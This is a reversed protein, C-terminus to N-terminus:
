KHTKLYISNWCLALYLVPSLYRSVPSSIDSHLPKTHFVYKRQVLAHYRFLQCHECDKRIEPYHWLWLYSANCVIMASHHTRDAGKKLYHVKGSNLQMFYNSLKFCVNPCIIYPFLGLQSTLFFGEQFLSFCLSIAHPDPAEANKGAGVEWVLFGSTISWSQAPLLDPSYGLFLASPQESDQQEEQIDSPSQPDLPSLRNSFQLFHNFMQSSFAEANSQRSTNLLHDTSLM